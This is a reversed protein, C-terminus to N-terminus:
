RDWNDHLTLAAARVVSACQLISGVVWVWGSIIVVKKRGIKDALSSVILAGVLSGAPMAAVIAGQANPGPNGFTRAYADNQTILGVLPSTLVVIFTPCHVLLVYM